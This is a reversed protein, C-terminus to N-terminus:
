MPVPTGALQRRIATPNALALRLIGCIATIDEQHIATGTPLVLVRTAVDETAPLRTPEALRYPDLQHCGPYFYRRALVNEAHLISVLDDRVIGAQADGTIEVVVYQYNHREGEPYERVSVGPVDGLEAGYCLYNRRNVAVFEDLADFSTIGMAASLESMKANMGIDVVTDYGVFAYNRLLRLRDALDGDNTTVAGGEAANVVKTAHFSFVEADGFRGITKGRFSCGIAHAADFIVRLGRERAFRTVADIECPRGWLHVGVIGTTEPTVLDALADPDLTHTQPDIDCFVPKLGLWALSHATAVFTFSPVIVEGSLELAHAALQLGITGSAVAVCHEAGTLEAVRREFDKVLPGDNTLWRRDYVDGVLELLRARDGLNPAGVHLPEEFAPPGGFIALDELAERAVPRRFSRAM